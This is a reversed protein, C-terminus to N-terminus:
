KQFLSSYLVLWVKFIVFLYKSILFITKTQPKTKKFDRSSDQTVNTQEDELYVIRDLKCILRWKLSIQTWRRNEHKRFHHVNKIWTHNACAFHLRPLEMTWFPCLFPGILCTPSTGEPLLLILMKPSPFATGPYEPSCVKSHASLVMETVPCIMFEGRLDLHPPFTLCHQPLYCVPSCSSRWLKNLKGTLTMSSEWWGLKLGNVM